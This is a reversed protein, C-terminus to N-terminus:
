SILFTRQHKTLLKKLKSKSFFINSFFSIKINKKNVYNHRTVSSWYLWAGNWWFLCINIEFKWTFILCLNCLMKLCTRKPLHDCFVGLFMDKKIVGLISHKFPGQCITYRYGPGTGCGLWTLGFWIYLTPFSKLFYKSSCNELQWTVYAPRVALISCFQATQSPQTLQCSLFLFHKDFYKKFDNGVKYIHNPKVQIHFRGRICTCWRDLGM